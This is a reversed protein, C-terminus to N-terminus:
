QSMVTPIATSRRSSAQSYKWVVMISECLDHIKSNLFCKKHFIPCHKFTVFTTQTIFFSWDCKTSNKILHFFTSDIKGANKEWSLSIGWWSMVGLVEGVFSWHWEMMFFVDLLMKLPDFIHDNIALSCAGSEQKDTVCYAGIIRRIGLAINWCRVRSFRSAFFNIKTAHFQCILRGHQRIFPFTWHLNLNAAVAEDSDKTMRRFCFCLNWSKNAVIWIIM